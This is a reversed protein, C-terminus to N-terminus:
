FFDSKILHWNQKFNKFWAMLTSDYDPAFNHWDELVFFKKWAKLLQEASPLMSNPFIEQNTWFDGHTVSKLGAITHLLFLGGDPLCDYIIRMFEKYNQYGVHEIMGCVVIKTFKEEGLNLDRYDMQIIEVPLGKTFERAYEAQEKSITIGTVQCGYNEAVFKALGGWGCGIDLLHDKSSLHLKECILRMKNQQATNLNDTDKFYGCTYQYYPDLFTGFFYAPYDYHKKAVLLSGLRTQINFLRTKLYLPLLRWPNIKEDLKANLVRFFFEDLNECDWLGDVYSNGLGLSGYRTISRYFKIFNEFKIQIDWPNPGNVM